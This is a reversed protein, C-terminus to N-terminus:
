SKFFLTTICSTMHYYKLRHYQLIKVQLTTTDRYTINYYLSIYHPQVRPIRAGYLRLRCTACLHITFCVSHAGVANCHYSKHVLYDCFKRSSLLHNLHTTLLRLCLFAHNICYRDGIKRIMALNKERSLPTLITFM